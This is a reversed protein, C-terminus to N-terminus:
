SRCTMIRARLVVAAPWDFLLRDGAWSRGPRARVATESRTRNGRSCLGPLRARVVSTQGRHCRPTAAIGSRDAESGLCGSSRGALDGYTEAAEGAGGRGGTEEGPPKRGGAWRRTLVM